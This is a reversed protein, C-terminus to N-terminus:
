AIRWIRLRLEGEETVKHTTYKHGLLRQHHCCTASMDKQADVVFPVFFSDGIQLERFPYKYTKPLKKTRAKQQKIIPIPIDKSIPTNM